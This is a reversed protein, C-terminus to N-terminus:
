YRYLSVVMPLMNYMWIAFPLGIITISILWAVSMWIGSVWWGIFVFYIGRVVLSRQEQSQVTVSTGVEDSTIIQTNQTNKLSIIKPVFNIMKIGIPIGIITVNLFWAISLWIGSAWWGVLVYWVARVVISHQETPQIHTTHESEARNDREAM